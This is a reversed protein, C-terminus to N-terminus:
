AAFSPDGTLQFVRSRGLETLRLAIIRRDNSSRDAREILRRAILRQALQTMSSCTFGIEEAICTMNLEEHESLILLTQLAALGLGLHRGTQLIASLESVPITTATM